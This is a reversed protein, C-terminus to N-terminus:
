FSNPTLISCADYSYGPVEQSAALILVLSHSSAYLYRYILLQESKDLMKKKHFLSPAWGVSSESGSDNSQLFWAPFESLTTTLLWVSSTLSSVSFRVTMWTSLTRKGAYHTLTRLASAYADQPSPPM